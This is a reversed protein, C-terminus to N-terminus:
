GGNGSLDRALKSPLPSVAPITETSASGGRHFPPREIRAISVVVLQRASRLHLISNSARLQPDVLSGEHLSTPSSPSFFPSPLRDKRSAPGWSLFSQFPVWTPGTSGSRAGQSPGREVPASLGVHTGKWSLFALLSPRAMKSQIVEREVVTSM